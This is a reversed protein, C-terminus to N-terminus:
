VKKNSGHNVYKTKINNIDKDTLKFWEGYMRKSAYEEHLQKEVDVNIVFMLEISPNNHRLDRCRKQCDTSRGIKICKHMTDIMLYTKFEFLKSPPTKFRIKQPLTKLPKIKPSTELHPLKDWIENDFLMGGDGEVFEGTKFDFLKAKINNDM